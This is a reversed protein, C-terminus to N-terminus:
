PALRSRSPGETPEAPPHDPLPHLILREVARTAESTSRGRLIQSARHHMQRAAAHENSVAHLAAQLLLAEGVIPLRGMREGVEHARKIHPEATRSNSGLLAAAALALDLFARSWAETEPASATLAAARQLWPEAQEPEGRALLQDAVGLVGGLRHSPHVLELEASREYLALAEDADGRKAALWALGHLAASLVVPNDEEDLELAEREAQHLLEEAANADRDAEYSAIIPLMFAHERLRGVQILLPLSNRLISEAGPRGTEARGFGDIMTAYALVDPSLSDAAARLRPIWDLMEPLLGTVQWCWGLYAVIALGDAPRHSLSWSLSLRINPLEALFRAAGDEADGRYWGPEASQAFALAVDTLRQLMEEEEGSEGLREYAYERITELQWYRASGDSDRRRVLSKDILSQLTDPDAGAITEADEYLCGAPFVSLRRFLRQEHENLLEHSWDITARLTQQRPDSDRGGRLLDLREGIRALLQEPTFLATRAAALEIALPLDDLLRCLAAVAPSGAFSPNLQRSRTAFLEHAEDWQLSPVPYVHEGAIQLRERSTILLWLSPCAAALRTVIGAIGPLLHEANDLLVLTPQRGLRLALADLTDSGSEDVGLSRAIAALVHGDDRLPALSVWYLGGVFRDSADAAAQLALRTKGTGGPGTLTVQRVDGGELLRLLASLEETRGLFATAPVPLNSRYLSRLPPFDGDGLQFVREAARLDKFRHEGLDRLSQKTLAATAASVVVQGGHAAAAIRAARHVEMGVYGTEAVLVDGTHIGMRVRLGLPELATQAEAAAALAEGASAFAVCFADGATDVEFGDHAAWAERCVRHHVALLEAYEAVGVKELLSTSGEIDTFVFTVTGAPASGV